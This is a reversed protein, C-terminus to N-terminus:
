LWGGHGAQALAAGEKEKGTCGAVARGMAAEPLVLKTTFITKIKSGM